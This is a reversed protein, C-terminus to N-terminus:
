PEKQIKIFVYKVTGKQQELMELTDGRLVLSQGNASMKSNVVSSGSFEVDEPYQCASMSKVLERCMKNVNFIITNKKMEETMTYPVFGNTMQDLVFMERIRWVGQMKDRLSVLKPTVVTQKKVVQKKQKTKKLKVVKKVKLKIPKQNSTARAVVVYTSIIHANRDIAIPSGIFIMMIIVLLVQYKFVM